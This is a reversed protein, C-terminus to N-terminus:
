SRAPHDLTQLRFDTVAAVRRVGCVAVPEPRESSFIVFVARMLIHPECPVGRICREIIRHEIVTPEITVRRHMARHSGRSTRARIQFIAPDFAYDGVQLIAPPLHPESECFLPCFFHSAATLDCLAVVTATALTTATVSLGFGWFWTEAASLKVQYASRFGTVVCLRMELSEEEFCRSKLSNWKASRLGAAVVTRTLKSTKWM